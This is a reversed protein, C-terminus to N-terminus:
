VRVADKLLNYLGGGIIAGVAAGVPGGIAGSIAVISGIALTDLLGHSFGKIGGLFAGKLGAKAAEWEDLGVSKAAESTKSYGEISKYAGTLVSYAGGFLSIGLGKAMGQLFSDDPTKEVEDGSIKVEKKGLPGKVKVGKLTIKSSYNSLGEVKEM